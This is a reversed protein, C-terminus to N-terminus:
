FINYLCKNLISQPCKFKFWFLFFIQIQGTVLWVSRYVPWVSRYVPVFWKCQPKQIWIQSRGTQVLKRGFWDPIGTGSGAPKGPIGTSKFFESTTFSALVCALFSSNWRGWGNGIECLHNWLYWKRGRFIWVKLYYIYIYTFFSTRSMMGFIAPIKV